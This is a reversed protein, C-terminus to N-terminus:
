ESTQRYDEIIGKITKSTVYGLILGSALILALNLLFVLLNIYGSARIKMTLDMLSISIEALIWALSSNIIWKKSNNSFKSLLISQAYSTLIAGIIVGLPLKINMAIQNVQDLVVFPLGMGISSIILWNINIPILKRLIFWQFLGVGLGMGLGLYFQLHEIGMSDLFSSFMIILFAGLLWGLFNSIIWSKNRYEKTGIQNM